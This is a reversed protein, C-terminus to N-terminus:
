IIRKSASIVVCFVEHRQLTGNQFFDLFVVLFAWKELVGNKPTKEQNKWLHSMASVQTNKPTTIMSDFRMMWATFCGELIIKLKQWIIAPNTKESGQYPPGFNLKLIKPFFIWNTYVFSCRFCRPILDIGLILLFQPILGGGRSSDSSDWQYTPLYTKIEKQYELPWKKVFM